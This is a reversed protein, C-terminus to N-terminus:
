EPNSDPEEFVFWKDWNYHTFKSATGDKKIKSILPVAKGYQYVLGSFIGKNKGDTMITGIVPWSKKEEEMIAERLMERKELLVSELEKIDQKLKEIINEM